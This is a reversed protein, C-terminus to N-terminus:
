QHIGHQSMASTTLKTLFYREVPTLIKQWHTAGAADFGSRKAGTVSSAQGEKPQLMNETFEIGIFGSLSELTAAPDALLEEYHFLQYGERGKCRVHIRGSIRYQLVVFVDMLLRMPLRLWQHREVYRATGGPDNTKSAAIARPDRTIHIIPAGPYWEFLREAENLFVPFKVLCREYGRVLTPEDVLARFIAGLSRDSAKLREYLREALRDPEVRQIQKWFGGRLGEKPGDKLLADVLKTINGDQSLDGANKKLFYRFDKRGRSLFHMENYCYISENQAIARSWLTSGSRPIGVMFAPKVKIENKKNVAKVQIGSPTSSRMISGICGM